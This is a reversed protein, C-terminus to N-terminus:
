CGAGTRSRLGDLSFRDFRSVYLGAACILVYIYNNSAVDHKRAVAMGFALSITFLCTLVWGAKLRYGVVLWVAILAEIFPTAYGHMTVLAPPLWTEAFTAQFYGVTGRISEAGGQLKGVAASSFLSAVALRLVLSAWRGVDAERSESPLM